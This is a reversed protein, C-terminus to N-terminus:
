EVNSNMGVHDANVTSTVGWEHTAQELRRKGAAPRNGPPGEVLHANPELVECATYAGTLLEREEVLSESSSGCPFAPKDHAVVVEDERVSVETPEEREGPSGAEADRLGGV